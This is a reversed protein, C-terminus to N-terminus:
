KVEKPRQMAKHALRELDKRDEVSLHTVDATTTIELPNGGQGGIDLETKDGYVARNMRALSWKSVDVILRAKQIADKDWPVSAATDHMDDHWKCAQLERARAYNVSFARHQEPDLGRGHMYWAAVTQRHPLHSDQCMANLTEGQAMRDCVEDAIADTYCSPRGGASQLTNRTKSKTSKLKSAKKRAAM